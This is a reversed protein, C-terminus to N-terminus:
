KLSIRKALRQMFDRVREFVGLAESAKFDGHTHMVENRDDKLRNLQGALIEYDRFHSKLKRGAKPTQKESEIKRKIEAILENWTADEIKIRKKDRYVIVKLRSAVRRMGMEAVRIAHFVAATNLDAALCNSATKIELNIEDSALPKFPKDKEGFADEQEFFKSKELPIAAFKRKHLETHLAFRLGSIESEIVQFTVGPILRSFLHQIKRHSEDFGLRECHKTLGALVGNLRRRDADPAICGAGNQRAQELANYGEWELKSLLDVFEFGFFEFM